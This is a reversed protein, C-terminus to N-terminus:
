RSPDHGRDGREAAQVAARGIGPVPAGCPRTGTDTVTEFSRDLDGIRSNASGFLTGNPVV